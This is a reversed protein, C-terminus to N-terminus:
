ADSHTSVGGHVKCGPARVITLVASAPGFATVAQGVPVRLLVAFLGAVGAVVLREVVFVVRAVVGVVGYM